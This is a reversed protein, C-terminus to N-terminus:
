IGSFPWSKIHMTTNKIQILNSKANFQGQKNIIDGEEERPLPFLRHTRKFRFVNKRRSVTYLLTWGGRGGCRRDRVQNSRSCTIVSGGGCTVVIREQIKTGVPGPSLLNRAMDTTEVRQPDVNWGMLLKGTNLRVPTQNCHVELHQPLPPVTPINEFGADWWETM